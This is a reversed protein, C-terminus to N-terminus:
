ATTDYRDPCVTIDETLDLGGETCGVLRQPDKVAAVEAPHVIRL